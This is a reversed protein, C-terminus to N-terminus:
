ITFAVRRMAMLEGLIELTSGNKSDSADGVM